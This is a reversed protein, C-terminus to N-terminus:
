VFYTSLNQAYLKGNCNNNLSPDIVALICTVMVVDFANICLQV